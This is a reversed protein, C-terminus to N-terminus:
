SSIEITLRILKDGEIGITTSVAHLFDQKRDRKLNTTTAKPSLSVKGRLPKSNSSNDCLQKFLQECITTVSLM